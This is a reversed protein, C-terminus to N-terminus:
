VSVKQRRWGVALDSVARVLPSLVSDQWQGVEPVVTFGSETSWSLQVATLPVLVVPRSPVLQTKLLDGVRLGDPRGYAMEPVAALAVQLSVTRAGEDLKALGRADMDAHVDALVRAPTAAPDVDDVDRADLVLERVANLASELPADIVPRILRAAGERPGLVVVRTAGPYTRSWSWDDVVGSHATIKKLWVAPEYCTVEYRAQGADWRVHLGIGATTILPYLLDSLPQWRASVVVQAGRGQSAPFYLSVGLRTAARTILTRAVTEAPGRVVDYTKGAAPAANWDALVAHDDVLSWTATGVRGGETGDPHAQGQDGRVTGTSLVEGTLTSTFSFRAGDSMLDNTREHSAPLTLSGTATAGHRLTLSVSRPDKVLEVPTGVKDCVRFWWPGHRNGVQEWTDLEGPSVSM